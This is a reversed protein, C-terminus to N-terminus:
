IFWKMITEGISDDLLNTGEKFISIKGFGCAHHQEKGEFINFNKFDKEEFSTTNSPYLLMAKESQWYENYVYMQRLDDTSPQSYNINKWKTLYPNCIRAM